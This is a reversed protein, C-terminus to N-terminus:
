QVTIYGVMPGGQNIDTHTLCIIPYTGPQKATFRVITTEGKQVEGKINLGEIVFPHSLGNVGTINLQIQEGQKVVITGPDWRYVEFEKGDKTTTKYEGTVLHIVRETDPTGSATRAHDWRLYAAAMVVVLVLITFLQIQKKSVVFVKSM